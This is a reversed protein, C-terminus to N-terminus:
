KNTEETKGIPVWYKNHIAEGDVNGYKCPKIMKYGDVDVILEDIINPWKKCAKQFAINYHKAQIDNIFKTLGIKNNYHCLGKWKRKGFRESFSELPEGDIVDVSGEDLKFYIFQHIKNVLNKLWEWRYRHWTGIYASYGFLIQYLGGNWFRLYEDRYTGFKEKGCVGIHHKHLYAEIFDIAAYLDQGNKEFWEDGWYHM